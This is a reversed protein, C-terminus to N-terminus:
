FGANSGGKRFDYNSFFTGNANRQIGTVVSGFAGAARLQHGIKQLNDLIAQPFEPEYEISNPLLQHHIRRDDIAEKVNKGMWLIKMSTLAVSSTIRSGGAAGIALTVDGNEDVFIAPCMSSVPRKGPYIFNPVSPPLGFKNVIHPASFDDMENNLIIGTSPSRLGSGFWYNITNTASVADGNPAIVAMHATGYDDRALHAGYHAPPFTQNDLIKSFTEKVVSDSSMEAIVKSVNTAFDEDGLQTRYGYGFKLAEVYRQYTLTKEQLSDFSASTMKYQSLVNLIFGLVHGSGPPPVSYMTLKDIQTQMAKKVRPKYNKLDELTIIGGFQKIDKVLMQGLTGTYLEDAGKEAILQLTKALKPRRVEDGQVLVHHTKPNVFVERLSKSELVLKKQNRLARALHLGAKFGDRALKIAPQFLDAWPLTGFQKHAEQMGRIEGPVAVAMAGKFALQQDGKYMDVTAAGPATERADIVTATKTNRQYVTMFFGGGIGSSQGNYVGMCLLTAIAADVASGNKVLMQKGAEACPVSDSVVAATTFYGLESPPIVEVFDKSLSRFGILVGLTVSIATLLLVGAAAACTKVSFVNDRKHHGSKVDVLNQTSTVFLTNNTLPAERVSLVM